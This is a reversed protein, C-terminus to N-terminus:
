EMKLAKVPDIRVAKIAPAMCAALAVFILFASVLFYTLPDTAATEFLLSQLLRSTAVGDKLRGIVRFNRNGRSTEWGGGRRMPFCLEVDEPYGFDRPSVWPRSSIPPFSWPPHGSRSGKAASSGARNLSSILPWLPSLTVVSGTTSTTWPESQTIVARSVRPGVGCSGNPSTFLNM